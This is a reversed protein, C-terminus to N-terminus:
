LGAGNTIFLRLYVGHESTPNVNILQRMTRMHHEVARTSGCLGLFQLGRRRHFLRGCFRGPQLAREQDSKEQLNM